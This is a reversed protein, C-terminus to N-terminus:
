NFFSVYRLFQSKELQPSNKSIKQVSIFWFGFECNVFIVLIATKTNRRLNAWISKM